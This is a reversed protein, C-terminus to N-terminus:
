QPCGADTDFPVTPTPPLKHRVQIARAACANALDLMQGIGGPTQHTAALVSLRVEQNLAAQDEPYLGHCAVVAVAGALVSIPAKM